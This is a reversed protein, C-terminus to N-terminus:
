GNELPVPAARQREAGSRAADEFARRIAKDQQTANLSNAIGTLLQALAENNSEQARAEAGLLMAQLSVVAAVAFLKKYKM